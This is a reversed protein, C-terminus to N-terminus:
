KCAQRCRPSRSPVAADSSAKVVTGKFRRGHGDRKKSTYQLLLETERESARRNQWLEKGRKDAHTSKKISIGGGM